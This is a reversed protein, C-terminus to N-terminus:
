EITSKHPAFSPKWINGPDEHFIPAGIPKQTSRSRECDVNSAELAEVLMSPFVLSYLPAPWHAFALLPQDTETSARTSTHGPAYFDM